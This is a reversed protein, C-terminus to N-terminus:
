AAPAPDRTDGAAVGGGVGGDGATAVSGGRFSRLTESITSFQEVSLGKLDDTAPDNMPAGTQEDLLHWAAVFQRVLAETDDAAILARWEDLVRQAVRRPNHVEIWQGAFEPDHQALDIHITKV